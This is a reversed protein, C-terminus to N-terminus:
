ESKEEKLSNFYEERTQIIIDAVKMKNEIKFYHIIGKSKCYNLYPMIKSQPIGLKETLFYDTLYERIEMLNEDEKKAEQLKKIKKTEGSLLGYLKDISGGKQYYNQKRETQTLVPKGANPIGLTIANVPNQDYNSEVLLINKPKELVIENLENINVIMKIMLRRQAIIEETIILTKTKLQIDSFTLTDNPRVPIAFEGYANSITGINATINYIHVNEVATSDSEIKGAITTSKQQASIQQCFFLVFLPYFHKM